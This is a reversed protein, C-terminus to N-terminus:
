GAPNSQELVQADHHLEDTFARGYLATLLDLMARLYADEPSRRRNGLGSGDGALQGHRAEAIRRKRLANALLHTAVERQIDDLM